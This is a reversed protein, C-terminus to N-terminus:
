LNDLIILAMQGTNNEKEMRYIMRGNVKIIHAMKINIYAKAMPKIIDGIEKIIIAEFTISYELVMRM